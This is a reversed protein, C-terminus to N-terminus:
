PINQMHTHYTHMNTKDRQTYTHPIYHKAHHISQATYINITLTCTTYTTNYTPHPICLKSTTHKVYVHSIHAHTNYTHTYILYTTPIQPTHPIHSCHTHTHIHTNRKLSGTNWM